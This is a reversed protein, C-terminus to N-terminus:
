KHKTPMTLFSKSVAFQGALGGNANRFFVTQKAATDAYKFLEGIQEVEIRYIKGFDIKKAKDSPIKAYNESAVVNWVGDGRKVRAIGTFPLIKEGDSDAFVALRPCNALVSCDPLELLIKGNLPNQPISFYLKGSAVSIKMDFNERLNKDSLHNLKEVSFDAGAQAFVAVGNSFVASFVGDKAVKVRLGAAPLTANRNLNAPKENFFIESSKGANKIFVVGDTPAAFATGITLCFCLFAAALRM